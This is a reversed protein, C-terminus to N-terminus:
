RVKNISDVNGYLGLVGGFNHLMCWLFPQGYYGEFREFQPFLESYLDLVLMRGIPISTLLAKAQDAQWFDRNDFFLWGQMVWIADPDTAMSQFM